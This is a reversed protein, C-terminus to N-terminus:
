RRPQAPPRLERRLVQALYAAKFRNGASTMHIPDAFYARDRPTAVDIDALGTSRLAALDRLVDNHESQGRRYGQELVRADASQLAFDPHDLYAQTVLWVQAGAAEALTIAADINRRFCDAGHKDINQMARAADPLPRQTRSQLTLPELIGLKWGAWLVLQSRYAWRALPSPNPERWLTRFHAYDCGFDDYFRPVVDNIACHILVVDPELPLAYFHLLSLIEASTYGGVGLNLVEVNRWGAIPDATLAKELQAPFTDDNNPVSVGYTTSAGLCAIRLTDPPKPGFERDDRFGQRNHRTTQGPTSTQVFDPALRYNVYPAAQFRQARGDGLHAYDRVILHIAPNASQMIMFRAALELVIVLIVLFLLYVPLIRVLRPRDHRQEVSTDMPPGM